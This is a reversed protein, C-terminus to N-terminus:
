AAVENQPLVREHDQRPMPFQADPKTQLYHRLLWSEDIPAQLIAQVLRLDREAASRTQKCTRLRAVDGIVVIVPKGPLEQVFLPISESVGGQDAFFCGAEHMRRLVEAAARVVEERQRWDVAGARDRLWDALNSIGLLPETLLFSEVRGLGRFRQGVALLKPTVVGHRQLRFLM